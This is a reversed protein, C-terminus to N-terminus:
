ILKYKTKNHSKKSEIKYNLLSIKNNIINTPKNDSKM